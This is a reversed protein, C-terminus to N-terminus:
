DYSSLTMYVGCYVMITRAGDDSIMCHCIMANRSKGGLARAYVAFRDGRALM